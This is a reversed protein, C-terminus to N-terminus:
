KWQGMLTPIEYLCMQMYTHLMYVYLRHKYIGSPLCVCLSPSVERKLGRKLGWCQPRVVVSPWTRNGRQRFLLTMNWGRPSAVHKQQANRQNSHSSHQNIKTASM